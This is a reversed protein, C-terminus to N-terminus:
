LPIIFGQSRFKGTVKGTFTGEDAFIQYHHKDEVGIRGPLCGDNALPIFLSEWHDNWGLKAIAPNDDAM